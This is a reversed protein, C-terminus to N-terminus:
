RAKDMIAALVSESPNGPVRQVAGDATRFVISPTGALGMSQMVALNADLKEQLGPKTTPVIALGGQAYRRHHEAFAIAPNTSGLITKARPESEEDIVAVLVNRVQVHGNALRPQMATWLKQCYPCETDTFVYIVATPKTAGEALWTTGQLAKWAQSDAATPAACATAAVMMLLGAAMWRIM